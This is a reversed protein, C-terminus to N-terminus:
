KKGEFTAKLKRVYASGVSFQKSSKKDDKSKREPSDTSLLSDSPPKTKNTDSSYHMKVIKKPLSSSGFKPSSSKEKKDGKSKGKSPKKKEKDNQLFPNSKISLNLDRLEEQSDSLRTLSQSLARQLGLENSTSEEEDKILTIKPTAPRLRGIDYSSTTNRMTNESSPRPASMMMPRITGGSLTRGRVPYTNNFNEPFLNMRDSDKDLHETSKARAMYFSRLGDQNSTSVEVTPNVEAFASPTDLNETSASKPRITFSVPSLRPSRPEVYLTNTSYSHSPNLAELRRIKAMQGEITNKLEMRESTFKKVTATFSHEMEQYDRHLNANEKVLSEYLDSTAKMKNFEKIKKEYFELKSRLEEVQGVLLNLQEKLNKNESRLEALQELKSKASNFEIELKEYEFDKKDVLSRISEREMEAAERLQTNESYKIEYERIEALFSVVQAKLDKNERKLEDMRILENRLSNIETDMLGEKNIHEEITNAKFANARELERNARKTEEMLILQTRLTRLESELTEGKNVHEEIIHSKATNARELERNERKIEEMQILQNRSDRLEMELTEGKKMHDEIISNKSINTRDLEARISEKELIIDQRQELVERKKRENEEMKSKM